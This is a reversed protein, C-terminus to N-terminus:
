KQLFESLTEQYDPAEKFGRIQNLVQGNPSFVVGRPYSDVGLKEALAENAQSAEANIKLPVFNKNLFAAFDKDVFTKKDLVQCWYCWDTYFDAFIPKGTRASEAKAKEYDNFWNVAEKKDKEASKTEESQSKETQAESTQACASHLDTYTFVAGTLGLGLMIAASFALVPVKPSIKRMATVEGLSQRSM